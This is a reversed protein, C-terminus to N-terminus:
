KKPKTKLVIDLVEKLEIRKGDRVPVIWTSKVGMARLEKQFQHAKWYDRFHFLTYRNVADIKEQQFNETPTQATDSLLKGLDRHEYAGIQVKFVLGKVFSNGQADTIWDASRIDGQGPMGVGPLGVPPHTHAPDVYTGETRQKERKEAEAKFKILEAMEEQTSRLERELDTRESAVMKLRHNEEILEKLELPKMHRKRKKWERVVAKPDVKTDKGQRKAVASSHTLWCLAILTYLTKKM